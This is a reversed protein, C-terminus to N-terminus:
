KKVELQGAIKFVTKVLKAGRFPEPKLIIVIRIGHNERWVISQGDPIDRGTELTRIFSEESINESLMREQAHRSVAINGLGSVNEFYHKM